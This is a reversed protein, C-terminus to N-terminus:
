VTTLLSCFTERWCPSTWDQSSDSAPDLLLLPISSPVLSAQPFISCFLSLKDRSLADAKSNLAGPIHRASLYFRFHAACFFLCRMLHMLHKDRCWGTNIVMVVAANDRLCRISLGSWERGWTAAALLIPLLEKVAISLSKWSNSWKVQFWQNGWIAAGGWSGSADSEVHSHPELPPLFSVGNWMVLFACWWEIDSRSSNTLRIHHHLKGVTTSLDILRCLFTRSPKVVASAHHLQGILSLLERKTCSKRVRWQQLTSHLEKLMADPLRLQLSASDIEIGLFTLKETPRHVKDPAVPVGLARCTLLAVQLQSNDFPTAAKDVFLFDDLYHLAHTVGNQHMAWLLADAVASFVKPASRLGFPLTTDVFLTGRWRMGLLHCDDPHVSVMRYASKIDLKSLLPARGLNRCINVAQDITSYKLSCKAADIGDNVSYGPPSSLDLILRWGDPVGRKPIVGFPSIQVAQAAVEDLTVVRGLRCETDLYNSVVHPVDTASRMNKKAPRRRHHAYDFGIRFGRRIGELIYTVFEEDPHSALLDSWAGIKLPSSIFSAKHPLPSTGSSPRCSDLALLDDM